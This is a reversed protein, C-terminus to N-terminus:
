WQWDEERNSSGSKVLNSTASSSSDLQSLFSKLHKLESPSLFEGSTTEKSSEVTESLNAQARMSNVQKGGRGRSPRGHLKWCTEKTHRPKGCYDCHLHDKDYNTAKIHERFDSANLGSKEIPITYDSATLGSKEIPTTYLM